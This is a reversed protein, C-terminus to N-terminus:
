HVKVMTTDIQRPITRSDKEFAFLVVRIAGLSSDAEQANQYVLAWGEFKALCFDFTGCSRSYQEM